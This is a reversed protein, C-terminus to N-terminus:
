CEISAAPAWVAPAWVAPAWFDHVWILFIADLIKLAINNLVFCSASITANATQM